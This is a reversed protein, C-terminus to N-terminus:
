GGEFLFYGLYFFGEFFPYGSDLFFKIGVDGYLALFFQSGFRVFKDLFLVFLYFFYKHFDKRLGEGDHFGCGTTEFLVCLNGDSCTVEVAVKGGVM